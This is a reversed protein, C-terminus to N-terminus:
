APPAYTHAAPGSAQPTTTTDRALQARWAREQEADYHMGAVIDAATRRGMRENYADRQWAAEEAAEHRRDTNDVTM